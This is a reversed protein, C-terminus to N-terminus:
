TNQWTLHMCGNLNYVAQSTITNCVIM